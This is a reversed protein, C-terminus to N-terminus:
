RESRRFLLVAAGFAAVSVVVLIVLGALASGECFQLIDDSPFPRHFPGTVWEKAMCLLHYKVSLVRLPLPIMSLPQDWLLVFVLSVIMGHRTLLGALSFLALYAALGALAPPVSRLFVPFGPAGFLTLAAGLNLLIFGAALFAFACALRASLIASRPLPRTFLYAATGAETDEAVAALAFFLAALQLLFGISGTYMVLFYTGLREGPDGSGLTAALGALLLLLALLAVFVLTRWSLVIARVYMSAALRFATSFTM